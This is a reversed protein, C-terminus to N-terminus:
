YEGADEDQTTKRKRGCAIAKITDLIELLISVIVFVAIIAIVFLFPSTMIMGILWLIDM